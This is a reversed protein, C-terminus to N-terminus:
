SAVATPLDQSGDFLEVFIECLISEDHSLTGNFNHYMTVPKNSSVGGLTQFQDIAIEPFTTATRDLLSTLSSPFGLSALDFGLSVAREHLIFRTLGYRFDLVLNPRIM